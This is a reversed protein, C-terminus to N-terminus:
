PLPGVAKEIEALLEPAPHYWEGRIRHEEFRAHWLQEAVETGEVMGLLYLQEFHASQLTQFRAHPRDAIGIKIPGTRGHRVFYIYRVVRREERKPRPPVRKADVPSPENFIWSYDDSM